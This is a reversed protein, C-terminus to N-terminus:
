RGCGKVAGVVARLRDLEDTELDLGIRLIRVWRQRDSAKIERLLSRGYIIQERRTMHDVATIVEADSLTECVDEAPNPAIGDVDFLAHVSAIPAEPFLERPM